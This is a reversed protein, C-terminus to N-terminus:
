MKLLFTSNFLIIPKRNSMKYLVSVTKVTKFFLSVTGHMSQLITTYKVFIIHELNKLHYEKKKKGPCYFVECINNPSANFVPLFETNIVVIM